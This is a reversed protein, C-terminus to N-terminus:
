RATKPGRTFEGLVQVLAPKAGPFRAEPEGVLLRIRQGDFAKVRWLELGNGQHRVLHARAALQALEARAQELDDLRALAAYARAARETIFFPGEISPPTGAM